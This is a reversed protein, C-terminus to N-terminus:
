LLWLEAIGLRMPMVDSERADFCLATSWNVVADTFMARAVSM